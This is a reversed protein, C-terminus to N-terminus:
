DPLSLMYTFKHAFSNRYIIKGKFLGNEKRMFVADDFIALYNAANEKLMLVSRAYMKGNVEHTALSHKPDYYYVCWNRNYNTIIRYIFVVLMVCFLFLAGIAVIAMTMSLVDPGM